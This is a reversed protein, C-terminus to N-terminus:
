VNRSIINKGKIENIVYAWYKLADSLHTTKDDQPKYLKRIAERWRTALLSQKLQYCQPGIYLTDNLFRKNLAEVSVTEAPNYDLAEITVNQYGIERLLSAIAEYDTQESKHSGRHGSSDGFIRIETRAFEDVPFKVAFDIVADDLQGINPSIERVAVDRKVRWRAEDFVHEQLAVWSMPNANFDFTLDIPVFPNVAIDDKVDHVVPNYNAYANGVLLPVFYGYIWAKIYNHQGEYTELLTQIYDAPLYKQNDYTTLRFRRFRKNPNVYDRAKFKLWGKNPDYDFLQAYYNTNGQTVGELFMQNLQAGTDRCRGLALKYADETISGAESIFGHGYTVGVLMDPRVASVFHLESKNKSKLWKIKPYPSEVVKYHKGRLLGLSYLVKDFTPIATDLIRQYTPMMFCNFKVDPDVCTKHWAIQCLGHTKGSGLGATTAFVKTRLDQIAEQVWWQIDVERARSTSTM